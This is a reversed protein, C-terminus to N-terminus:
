PGPHWWAPNSLDAEASAAVPRPNTGDANMLYIALKGGRDSEFALQTGDPSWSPSGDRGPERTLQTVTGTAVDVIYIDADGPAMSTRSGREFAIRTGDPSWAPQFEELDPDDTLSVVEGSEIDLISLGARGNPMASFAIKDGEPSWTPYAVQPTLNCSSCLERANLLISTGGISFDFNWLGSAGAFGYAWAFSSGDPALEPGASTGLAVDDTVEMPEGNPGARYVESGHSEEIDAQVLLDGNPMWMPSLNVSYPVFTGTAQWEPTRNVVVGTELDLVHVDSRLTRDPYRDASVFAILGTAGIASPPVPSVFVSASPTGGPTEQLPVSGGPSTPPSSAVPSCATVLLSAIVANGLGLRGLHTRVSVALM